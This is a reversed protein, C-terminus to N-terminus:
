QACTITLEYADYRDAQLNHVIAIASSDGAATWLATVPGAFEVPAAAEAPSRDPIEFTRIMDPGTEDGAGSALLQMGAGCSSRVAAVSSGWNVGRFPIDNVGDFSHISGDTRVFIWLTYAPHPMAAASYFPALVGQKGLSPSMAGTFFNRAPAFFASQGTAIPWPDDAVRCNMTLPGSGSSTCVTGPLYADFLHDTRPVLRGRLDRPWPADHSIALTQQPQWTGGIKKFVNVATPDLVLMMPESGAPVIAVDLIEASQSWLLSKRLAMSASVQAPSIASPREATVMAVRTDSGQQVEAVWVYGRANESFTVRFEAAANEPTTLRAGAARLERELAKRALDADGAPLSSQNRYTISAAGPGSIAVIQRALEAAPQSWDAASGAACMALVMATVAAIWRWWTSKMPHLPNYRPIMSREVYKCARSALKVGSARIRLSCRNADTCIRADTTFQGPSFVKV